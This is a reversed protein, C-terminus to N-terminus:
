EATKHHSGFGGERQYNCETNVMMAFPRLRSFKEYCENIYEKGNTYEMGCRHAYNYRSLRDVYKMHRKILNKRHIYKLHLVYFDDTNLYMRSLQDVGLENFAAESIQPHFYHGGNTFNTHAYFFPRFAIAKRFNTDHYFRLQPLLPEHYNIRESVAQIGSAIIGHNKKQIEYENLAELLPKKNRPLLWEDADIVIVWDNKHWKYTHQWCTNRIELHKGDNFRNGTSFNIIEIGPFERRAIEVTNDTSENDFLTIRGVHPAYHRITHAIIDQENWAIIFLHIM